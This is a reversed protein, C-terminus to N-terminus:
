FNFIENSLTEDYVILNYFVFFFFYFDIFINNLRSRTVKKKFNAKEM